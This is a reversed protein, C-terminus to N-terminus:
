NQTKIHYETGEIVNGDKDKVFTLRNFHDYSYYLTNGMPDTVSTIGVLPDYTYTTVMAKSLAPLARLNDLAQRLAGEKGTYNLTRDNDSNSLTQLNTVYVAIDQYTANEIKALPMTSNYGWIYVVTIGNEKKIELPNGYADYKLFHTVDEFIKDGKAKQITAPLEYNIGPFTGFNVQSSSVLPGILTGNLDKMVTTKYLGTIQGYFTNLSKYYYVKKLEKDTGANEVVYWPKRGSTYQLTDTKSIFSSLNDSYYKASQVKRTIVLLRQYLGPEYFLPTSFEYDTSVSVLKDGEENFVENKIEVGTKSDDQKTFGFGAGNPPSTDAVQFFTHKTRGNGTESVTVNRYAVMEKKTVSEGTTPDYYYQSECGSSREPNDFSNYGYNVQKIPMPDVGDFYSINKIRIGGGYYHRIIESSPKLVKKRVEAECDPCFMNTSFTHTGAQLILKTGYCDNDINDLQSLLINDLSIGAYVYDVPGDPGEIGDPVEIPPSTVVVYVETAEDLTFQGLGSHSSSSYIVEYTTNYLEDNYQELNDPAYASSYTNKYTNSEFEFQTYGGTPYIIKKLAQLNCMLPDADGIHSPAPKCPSNKRKFYGWKDKTLLDINFTFNPPYYYEFSHVLKESNEFNSEEIGLLILRGKFDSGKNFTFKKLPKNNYDWVEFGRVNPHYIDFVVKGVGSVNVTKLAKTINTFTGDVPFSVQETKDEYIYSVLTMNNADRVSSCYYVPRATITHSFSGVGGWVSGGGYQLYGQTIVDYKDFIYSYGRDDRITFSNIVFTTPNYNLLITVPYPNSELLEVALTNNSKHIIIFSGSYGLISFNYLDNGKLQMGANDPDSFAYEDPSNRRHIDRSIYCLSNLSWGLAVNGTREDAAVSSPHYAVNLNLSIDKSRTPMSALPISINPTGTHLSVPTEQFKMLAGVVPSQSNYLPLDSQGFVGNIFFFLLIAVKGKTFIKM